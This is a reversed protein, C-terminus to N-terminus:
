KAHSSGMHFNIHDQQNKKVESMDGQLTDVADRLSKGSNPYMEHKIEAVDSVLGSLPLIVKWVIGVLVALGGLLDVWGTLDDPLAIFM